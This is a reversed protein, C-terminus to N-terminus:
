ATLLGGISLPGKVNGSIDGAPAVLKKATQLIHKAQGHSAAMDGMAVSYELPRLTFRLM